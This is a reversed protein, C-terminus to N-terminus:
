KVDLHCKRWKIQELQVEVIEPSHEKEHEKPKQFDESTQFTSTPSPTWGRKILHELNCNLSVVMTGFLDAASCLLVNRGTLDAHIINCKHIFVMGSLSWITPHYKKLWTGNCSIRFWPEVFVHIMPWPIRIMVRVRGECLRMRRMSTTSSWTKWFVVRCTLINWKQLLVLKPWNLGAIGLQEAFPWARGEAIDSLVSRVAKKDPPRPWFTLPYVDPKICTVYVFGATYQTSSFNGYNIYFFLLATAKTPEVLM